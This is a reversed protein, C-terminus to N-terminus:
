QEMQSEEKLMRYITSKGIQLKKAVLLVDHNYKELFHHIIRRTYEKLPLEQNLFRETRRPSNFQIDEERITETETMVAAMEIIAKLERVNGPFNYNLLKRKAEKTITLKGLQNSKCFEGLFHRMLLIIDNGRDRLPPMEIPLGLLRYYLDERFRESKVEETLDRHTATIIRADFKVTETGGVRVIEREQLARLLKAQMSTEMEGIEDLFLTGKDALEFKGAKRTTAGTFAGKEHGFLESELLDRPIASVNVAIFAGKRRESNYHISRAVVEKGSGTEGKISVSINTRIAKELLKFVKQMPPSNGIITKSFTYKDVLEDKLTEVERKLQINNKLRDVTHKLRNKTENDKIIYDYAGDRLLQLAVSIDKQGSLIIVGIDKNYQHIKKLVEKGDLDPLSYDLSIIAPNLHLHDLCDRGSNFIHVEHDPDLELVYRVLRIYLPDDEVVFIKIPNVSKKM